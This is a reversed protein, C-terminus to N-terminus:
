SEEICEVSVVPLRLECLKRLVGILAGQDALRGFLVTEVEGNAWMEASVEMAQLKRSALDGLRGRVRIRYVIEGQKSPSPFDITQHSM